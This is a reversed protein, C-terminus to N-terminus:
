IEDVFQQLAEEGLGRISRPIETPCKLLQMFPVYCQIFEPSSHDSSISISHWKYAINNDVMITQNLTIRTRVRRSDLTVYTVGDISGCFILDVDVDDHSIYADIIKYGKVITTSDSGLYVKCLGNTRGHGISFEWFPSSSDNFAMWGNAPVSQIIYPFPTSASTMVPVFSVDCPVNDSSESSLSLSSSSSSSSM